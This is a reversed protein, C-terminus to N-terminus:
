VSRLSVVHSRRPYAVTLRGVQWSWRDGDIFLICTWGWRALDLLDDSKADM